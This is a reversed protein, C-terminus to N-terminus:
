KQWFSSAASKSRASGIGPGLSPAARPPPSPSCRPRPRSARRSASAPRTGCCRWRGRRRRALEEAEVALHVDRVVREEELLEVERGAVEAELDEGRRGRLDAREDAPVLPIGLRGPERRQLPRLHDEVRGRDAPVRLLLGLVALRLVRRPLRAHAAVGDGVAGVDARDVADAVLHMTPSPSSNQPPDNTQSGNPRMRFCALWSLSSIRTTFHSRLSISSTRRFQGNKRSRRM